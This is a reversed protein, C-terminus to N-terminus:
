HQQEAWHQLVLVEQQEQLFLLQLKHTAILLLPLPPQEVLVLQQLM